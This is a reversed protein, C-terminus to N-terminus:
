HALVDAELGAVITHSLLILSCLHKAKNVRYKCLFTLMYYKGIPRIHYNWIPAKTDDSQLVAHAAGNFM